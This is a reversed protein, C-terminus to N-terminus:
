TQVEFALKKLSPSPLPSPQMTDLNTSPQMTDLNTSPQMTDLNSSPQLNDLYHQVQFLYEINM